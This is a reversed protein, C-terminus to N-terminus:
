AFLGILDMSDSLVLVSAPLPFTRSMSFYESANERINAVELLNVDELGRDDLPVGPKDCKLEYIFLEESKERSFLKAWHSLSKLPSLYDGRFFVIGNLAM